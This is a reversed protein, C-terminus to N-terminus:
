QSKHARSQRPLTGAKARIAKITEPPLNVFKCGLFLQHGDQREVRIIELTFIPIELEEFFLEGNIHAGRPPPLTLSAREDVLVLLGSPSLNLVVAPIMEGSGMTLRLPLVVECRSDHRTLREATPRPTQIFRLPPM